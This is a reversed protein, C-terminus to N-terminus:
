TGTRYDASLKNKEQALTEFFQANFEGMKCLCERYAAKMSGTRFEEGRLVSVYSKRRRTRDPRVPEHGERNKETWWRRFEAVDQANKPHHDPHVLAANRIDTRGGEAHPTVHHIEMEDWHVRRPTERMRSWQCMEMDRFFIAQRQLNSFPLRPDLKGLDLLELMEEVFFAHRQQIISANDSQTQTHRGYRYYYRNFEGERDQKVDDRAKKVRRDFEDWKRALQSEWGEPYEKLLESTLLFLHILYHGVLKPGKFIGRLEKCVKLFNRTEKSHEDFDVQSHYFEDINASKIDCLKNKKQTMWYLMFIQVVLQRRKSENVVKAREIFLPEGCWRHVNSKGGVQLVFETFNGPWSDRKDQPTLPTGGQLRIFLDRISNEDDTEIEYVVIKEAKFIDQLDKSLESFRKGGWPCPDDKMFNPFKFGKEATPDLLVFAGESFSKIAEIRQQGDVIDYITNQSTKAVTKHFYFAPISYGRFISDIFMQKQPTTWRLGRQYEPNVRLSGEKEYEILDRVKWTEIKNKVKMNM